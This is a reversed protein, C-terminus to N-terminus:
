IDTAWNKKRRAPRRRQTPRPLEPDEVKVQERNARKEIASWV